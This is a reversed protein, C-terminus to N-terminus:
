PTEKTRAARANGPEKHPRDHCLGLSDPASDIEALLKEAECCRCPTNYRHSDSDCDWGDRINEAFDVACKLKAEAREARAKWRISEAQYQHAKRDADDRSLESLPTSM